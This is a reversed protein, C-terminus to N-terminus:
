LLQTITVISIDESLCIFCKVLTEVVFMVYRSVPLSDLRM